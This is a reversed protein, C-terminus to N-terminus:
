PKSRSRGPTVLEKAGTARSNVICGFGPRALHMEWFKVGAQPALGCSRATRAWRWWLDRRSERGPLTRAFVTPLMTRRRAPDDSVAVGGQSGKRARRQRTWRMGGCLEHRSAIRGKEPSVPLNVGGIQGVHRPFYKKNKPKVRNRFILLSKGTPSDNV